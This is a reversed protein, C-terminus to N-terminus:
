ARRLPTRTEGSDALPVALAALVHERDAEIPSLRECTLGADGLLRRLRALPHEVIKERGDSRKELSEYREFLYLHGDSALISHAYGLLRVFEADSAALHDLIVVDFAHRGCAEAARVLDRQSLKGDGTSVLVQCNFGRREAFARASQAARRSQAIAACAGSMHAARELLELHEVGIVLACDSQHAGRYAEVFDDLARGLRSESSSLDAEDTRPTLARHLDRRLLPDHQDLQALLGRVFGAAATESTVQYHVWQGHRLRAVLGAECLIRLHRSVRPESQGLALALDSVSLDRQSCLTLLRLRSPEGAARLWAVLQPSQPASM